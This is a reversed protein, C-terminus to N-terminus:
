LIIWPDGGTGEDIRGIGQSAHYCDACLRYIRVDGAGGAATLEAELRAILRALGPPELRCEFVSKQVRRGFSECVKAIRDRPRDPEIDYAVVYRM